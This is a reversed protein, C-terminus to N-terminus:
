CYKRQRSWYGTGWLYNLDPRIKILREDVHMGLTACIIDGIVMTHDNGEELYEPPHCLEFNHLTDIFM